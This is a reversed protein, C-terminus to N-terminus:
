SLNFVFDYTYLSKGFKGFGRHLLLKEGFVPHGCCFCIIFFYWVLFPIVCALVSVRIGSSFWLVLFFSCLDRYPLVNGLFSVCLVFRFHFCLVSFLILSVFCFCCGSVIHLQSHVGM